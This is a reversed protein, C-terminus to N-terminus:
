KVIYKVGNYVLWNVENINVKRMNNNDRIDMDIVDYAGNVSEFQVKYGRLIREDGRQIPLIPNAQIEEIAKLAANKVGKKADQAKQITLLAEELQKQKAAEIAKQSLEKNQKNFCVTFVQAGTIEKWISRIGQAKLDGERLNSPMNTRKVDESIQKQTWYTDEKTVEVETDYQDATRLMDTVYKETLNVVEGSELHLFQLKGADVKGNFVYHSQESFVDGEEVETLNIGKTKTSIM